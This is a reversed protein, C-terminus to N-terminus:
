AVKKFYTKMDRYMIINASCKHCKQIFKKGRAYTTHRGKGECKRVCKVCLYDTRDLPVYNTVWKWCKRCRQKGEKRAFKPYCDRCYSKWAENVYGGCCRCAGKTQQACPLCRLRQRNMDEFCGCSTPLCQVGCVDCRYYPVVKRCQVFMRWQKWVREQLAKIRIADQKCFPCTDKQCDYYRGCTRCVQTTKEIYVKRARLKWRVLQKRISPTLVMKWKYQCPYKCMGNKECRKCVNKGCYCCYQYEALKGCCCQKEQCGSCSYHPDISQIWGKEKRNYFLPTTDIFEISKFINRMLKDEPSLVGGQICKIAGYFTGDSTTIYLDLKYRSKKGDKELNLYHNLRFCLPNDGKWTTKHFFFKCHRCRQKYIIDNYIKEKLITCIWLLYAKKNLLAPQDCDNKEHLFYGKRNWKVSKKCQICILKTCDTKHFFYKNTKIQKAVSIPYHGM